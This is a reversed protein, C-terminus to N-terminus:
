LHDELPKRLLAISKASYILISIPPIVGKVILYPTITFDPDMDVCSNEVATKHILTAGEFADAVQLLKRREKVAYWQGGIEILNLANENPHGALINRIKQNETM